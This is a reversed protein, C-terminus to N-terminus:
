RLIKKEQVGKVLLWAIFTVEALTEIISFFPEVTSLTNIDFFFIFVTLIYCIGAGIMLSGLLRPMVNSKIILLGLPLLWLGWFVSAIMEGHKHLDLFLMAIANIQSESFVTLYDGTNIIILAGVQFIRNLFAISVGVIVFILMKRALDKDIRKFLRYLSNALFLFCVHGMLCSAVGVLYICYSAQLNDISTSINGPVYLSDVYMMSFPYLIAISLYWLGSIRANKKNLNNDM